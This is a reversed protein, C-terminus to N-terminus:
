IDGRPFNGWMECRAEVFAEEPLDLNLDACLGKLPHLAQSKLKKQQLFETFDLVEQQKEIPLTRFKDLLIQELSM